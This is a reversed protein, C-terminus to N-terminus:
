VQKNLTIYFATGKDAESEFWIKGGHNEVIQQCISLGLGFSREGATGPRKADTFMNFIKDKLNDPIGIGNDEVSIKVTGADDSLKVNIITDPLSFKIANSILNSIVRWIQERNIYLEVPIEMLEVVIQQDKEAAKFRLLEVSNSLLSNIEVLEKEKNTKTLTNDTAELIENILEISNNSTERILIILEKQEDTYESEEAMLSTLSAVGGLPNRLDHAVTRLIRDKERSSLNLETLANELHYNQDNIHTNLRGLTKINKKSKQWNLFILSIILLLMLGFVFAIRLYFHQMKNYQQLKEFEYNKELRKMQQTVDAEKLIKNQNTITDKLADYTVLYHFATQPINKKSFYNAMLLNWDAEADPNKISDFQLQVVKLLGILSDIKNEQDYLHALKLEALQADRNDNGKRLNINISKKLLTGALNFNNQKLYVNAENGYIVGRAVDLLNKQANFQRSENDIYKLAKKYFMMASDAENIKSYSLGTNDLLEQRRYFSTFGWACTNTQISSNKFYAAAVRFHDQKYMIMGMRYSYEGLTCDDLSKNAITKGQYYYQYANEYKNEDFYIDGKFFYAQGLSYTNKLRKDPTDFLNLMSDAYLMAKDNDKKKNYLFNYNVYYYHFKQLLTRNKYKNSVSDLYHIAKQPNGADFVLRASDIVRDYNLNQTSNNSSRNCSLFAFFIYIVGCKLLPYQAIKGNKSFFM